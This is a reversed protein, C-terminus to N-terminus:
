GSWETVDANRERRVETPTLKNDPTRDKCEPCLVPIEPALHLLWGNEKADEAQATRDCQEDQCELTPNPDIADAQQDRFAQTERKDIM